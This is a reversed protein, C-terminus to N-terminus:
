VLAGARAPAAHWPMSIGLTDCAYDLVGLAEAEDHKAPKFGLARCRDMALSKWDVAIKKGNEGRPRGVPGLFHRRWTVQNVSRIVRCGMADAWSEAHAALGFLVAVTEKNTAGSLFRPDLPEEYFVADIPNLANLDSMNEHLKAYTRGPSTFESGLTWAGSVPRADEPGWCGFGASRKSLDLSLVRVPNNQPKPTIIIPPPRRTM